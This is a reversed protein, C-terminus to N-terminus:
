LGAQINFGTLIQQTNEVPRANQIDPSFSEYIKALERIQKNAFIYMQHMPDMHRKM